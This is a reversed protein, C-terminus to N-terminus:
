ERGDAPAHIRPGAFEGGPQSCFSRSEFDYVESSPGDPAVFLSTASVAYGTDKMFPTGLIADIRDPLPSVFFSRQSLLKDGVRLDTVAFLALRVGDSGSALSAHVPADLRRVQMQLRHVLKPSLVDAQAGSDVLASSETSGDGFRVPLTLPQAAVTPPAPPARSPPRRNAKKKKRPGSSQASSDSDPNSPPPLTSSQSLDTGVNTVAAQM